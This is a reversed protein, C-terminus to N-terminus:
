PDHRRRTSRAQARATIRTLSLRRRALIERLRKIVCSRNRIRAAHDISNTNLTTVQAPGGQVPRVRDIRFGRGGTSPTGAYRGFRKLVGRVMHGKLLALYRARTARRARFRRLAVSDCPIMASFRIGM